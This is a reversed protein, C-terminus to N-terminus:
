AVRRLRVSGHFHRRLHLYDPLAIARRKSASCFWFLSHVPYRLNEPRCPELDAPHRRLRARASRLFSFQEAAHRACHTPPDYVLIDIKAETMDLLPRSM